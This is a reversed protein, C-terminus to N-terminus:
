NLDRELAEVRNTLDDIEIAKVAIDLISRAASVRASAPADGDEAIVMLVHAARSSDRQMQGIVQRVVESRAARYARQFGEDRLWRHVTVEGVGTARAAAGISSQSLLAAILKEKNQTLKQGHGKM